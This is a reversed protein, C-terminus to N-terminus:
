FANYIVSTSHEHYANRKRSNYKGAARYSGYINGLWFGAGITGFIWGNVSDLGDRNFGRYSQWTNSAVFLLAILGDKWDGTYFKGLGPILTSMGAALWPSKTHIQTYGEVLSALESYVPENIPGNIGLQNQAGEWDGALIRNSLLFTARKGAPLQHQDQIFRTAKQHQGSLATLLFVERILSEDPVQVKSVLDFARRVGVSYDKQLRYSSLLSLVASSDAPDMFVVREFEDAALDYQRTDFLYAAFRRSNELNFLDQSPLQYAFLLGALIIFNTWRTM